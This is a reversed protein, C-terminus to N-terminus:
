QSSYFSEKGGNRFSFGQERWSPSSSLAPDSGGGCGHQCCCHSLAGKFLIPGKHSLRGKSNAAREKREGRAATPHISCSLCHATRSSKESNMENKIEQRQFVKQKLHVVYCHERAQQLSSCLHSIHTSM